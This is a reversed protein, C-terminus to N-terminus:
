VPFGAKVLPDTPVPASWRPAPSSTMCGQKRATFAVMLYGINFIMGSIIKGFFRGHRPRLRDERWRCRHRASRLGGQWSHGAFGVIFTMLADYLWAMLFMGLYLIGMQRNAEMLATTM